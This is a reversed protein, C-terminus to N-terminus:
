YAKFDVNYKLLIELPTEWLTGDWLDVPSGPLIGQGFSEKGLPIGEPRLPISRQVHGIKPYVASHNIFPEWSMRKGFPHRELPIRQIPM